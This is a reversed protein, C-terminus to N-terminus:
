LNSNRRHLGARGLFAFTHGMVRMRRLARNARHRQSFHKSFAATRNMAGVSARHTVQNTPHRASSSSGRRRHSIRRRLPRNRMVRARPLFLSAMEYASAHGLLRNTQSNFAPYIANHNPGYRIISRSQDDSGTQSEVDSNNMVEVAPKRFQLYAFLVAIAALVVALTGFIINLVVEQSPHLEATHSASPSAPSLPSSPSGLASVTTNLLMTAM